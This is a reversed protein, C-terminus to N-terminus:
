NATRGEIGMRTCPNLPCGEIERECAIEVLRSYEKEDTETLRALDCGDFWSGPVLNKSHLISNETM